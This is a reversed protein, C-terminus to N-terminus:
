CIRTRLLDDLVDASSVGPSIDFATEQAEKAGLRKHQYEPALYDACAYIEEKKRLVTFEDEMMGLHTGSSTAPTFQFNM